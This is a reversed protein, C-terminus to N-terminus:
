GNLRHDVYTAIRNKVEINIIMSKEKKTENRPACAAVWLGCGVAHTGEGWSIARNSEWFPESNTFVM